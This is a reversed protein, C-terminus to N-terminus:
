RTIGERSNLSWRPPHGVVRHPSSTPRRPRSSVVTDGGVVSVSFVGINAVSTTQETVSLRIPSLDHNLVPVGNIPLTCQGPMLAEIPGNVPVGNHVYSYKLNFATGQLGADSSTQAKCIKLTGTNIENDFTVINEDNFPITVTATSGSWM